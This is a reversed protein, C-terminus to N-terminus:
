FKQAISRDVLMQSLINQETQKQIKLSLAEKELRTRSKLNKRMVPWPPQIEVLSESKHAEQTATSGEGVCTELLLLSIRGAMTWLVKNHLSLGGAEM